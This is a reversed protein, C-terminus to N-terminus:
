EPTMRWFAMGSAQKGVDASAVLDGTALDIVDVSGPEGGVGEVSVLAYRSDPTIVVGHTVGRTNPIRAREEGTELDWVGTTGETKHTVVLTEGDPSIALNYAGEGAPLRRTIEWRDLDIELIEDSGNGAVYVFRGDPAPEVWTPRVVPEAMPGGVGHDAHVDHVDDVDDDPGAMSMPGLDLRRIVEFRFADIEVLEDSMMMVSYQRDGSDNLRSSHPMMGVEIRAVEAMTTTEIVSVTSPSMDGHLDFNVVYLLGTSAAIDLTAPFLGAEVSGVFEDAGTRYKAIVGFPTGHALSVFWHSGDPSVGIGHPGEIETPRVGVPITKVVELDGDHLRMLAVEDESESAVYFWYVPEAQWANAQVVFGGLLIAAILAGRTPIRELAAAGM